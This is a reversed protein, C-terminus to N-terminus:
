DGQGKSSQDYTAMTAECIAFKKYFLLLVCAGAGSNYANNQNQNHWIRENLALKKSNWSGFDGCRTISSTIIASKMDCFFSLRHPWKSHGLRNFWAIFDLVVFVFFYRFEIRFQFGLAAFWKFGRTNLKQIGLTCIGQKWWGRETVCSVNWDQVRMFFSTATICLCHCLPSFTPFITCYITIFQLLITIFNFM